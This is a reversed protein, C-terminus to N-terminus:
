QHHLTSTLVRCISSPIGYTIILLAVFCFPPYIVFKMMRPFAPANSSVWPGGPRLKLDRLEEDCGCLVRILAVVDYVPMAIIASAIFLPPWIEKQYKLEM